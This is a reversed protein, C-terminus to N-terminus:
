NTDTGNANFDHYYLDKYKDRIGSLCVFYENPVGKRAKTKTKELGHVKWTTMYKPHFFHTM